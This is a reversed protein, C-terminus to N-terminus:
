RLYPTGGEDEWRVDYARMVNSKVKQEGLDEFTVDRVKKRVSEYVPASICIGGPIALAELRAAVNVGDGFIDGTDDVIIDGLNIGIRFRIRNELPLGESRRTMEGQM